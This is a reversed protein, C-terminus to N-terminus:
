VGRGGLKVRMHAAVRVIEEAMNKSDTFGGFNLKEHMNRSYQSTGNLEVIVGVGDTTATAKTDISWKIDPRGPRLAGSVYVSVLHGSQSFTGLDPDAGELKQLGPQIHVMMRSIVGYVANYLSDQAATRTRDYSYM